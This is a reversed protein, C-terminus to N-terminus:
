CSVSVVIAASIFVASIEVDAGSERHAQVVAAAKDCGDILSKM